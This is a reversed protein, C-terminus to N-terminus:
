NQFIGANQVLLEQIEKFIPDLNPIEITEREDRPRALAVAIPRVALAACVAPRNGRPRNDKLEFELSEIKEREVRQKERDVNERKKM